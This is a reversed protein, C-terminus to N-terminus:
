NKLYQEVPITNAYQYEFYLSDRQFEDSATPRSFYLHLNHQPKGGDFFTVILFEANLKDPWGIVNLYILTKRYKLKKMAEDNTLLMIKMKHIERPLQIAPFDPHKGIFLTDPKTSTFVTDIYEGIALSYLDTVEIPSISDQRISLASNVDNNSSSGTSNLVAGEKPSNCESLILLVCAYFLAPKIGALGPTNSYADVKPSMRHM